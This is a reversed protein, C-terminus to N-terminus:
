LLYIVFPYVTAHGKTWHITQAEDQVVMSYNESFYLTIAFESEKLNEKLHNMFSTQQKAIFDHRVLLSLKDCLLDILDASSKQLTELNCRDVSIWQRFTIKRILHEEFLKELITQIAATGPCYTCHGINCDITPPNCVMQPLCHKYTKFEGNTLDCLIANEIMLKVYQHITRVCVAHTGSSGVLICHKPRLEAFKSFCIKIHPFKEKFLTYGEKLNCLILRKSIKSKNKNPETVTICDKVGPIARSVEYNEYFLHVAEVVYESLHKGPKPNPIELMGKEALLKKSQRVMYNPADFEQMIKRVEWNPPLCTLLM